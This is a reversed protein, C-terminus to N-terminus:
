KLGVTKSKLDPNLIRRKERERQLKQILWIKILPQRSVGFYRAERDLEAIVWVPLDLNIKKTISENM